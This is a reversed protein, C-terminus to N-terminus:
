GCPLCTGSPATTLVWDSLNVCVTGAALCGTNWPTISIAEIPCCAQYKGGCPPATDSSTDSTATKLDAVVASDAAADSAVQIDADPAVSVPTTDLAVPQLDMPIVADPAPPPIADPTVPAKTDPSAVSIRDPGADPKAAPPVGSDPAVTVSDPQVDRRLSTDEGADKPTIATTGTSTSSCAGLILCFSLIARIQMGDEHTSMELEKPARNGSMRCPPITSGTPRRGAHARCPGRAIVALLVGVGHPMTSRAM